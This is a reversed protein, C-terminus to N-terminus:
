GIFQVSGEAKEVAAATKLIERARSRMQRVFRVKENEDDPLFYGSQCDTLIPCGARRAAEIERRIERGRRGTLAQLERLTVGNESGHGLFRLVGQRPPNLTIFEDNSVHGKKSPQGQETARESTAADSRANEKASM